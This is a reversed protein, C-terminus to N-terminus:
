PSETGLRGVAVSYVASARLGDLGLAADLATDDWGALAVAGMGMAACALYTNQVAHGAEIYAFLYGKAGYKWTSRAFVAAIVVLLGARGVLTPQAAASILGVLSRGADPGAVCRVAHQDPDYYYPGPSSGAPPVPLWFFLELPYCAGASPITRRRHVEGTGPPAAGATAWLLEAIEGWGLPSGSFERASRRTSVAGALTVGSLLFGPPGPLFMPPFRSFPAERPPPQAARAARRAIGVLDHARWRSSLHFVEWLPNDPM